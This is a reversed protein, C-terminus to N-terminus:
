DIREVSTVHATIKKHKGVPARETDAESCLQWHARDNAYVESDDYEYVIVKYVRIM